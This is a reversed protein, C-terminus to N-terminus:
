VRHPLASELHHPLGTLRALLSALASWSQKGRWSSRASGDKSSSGAFLTQRMELM